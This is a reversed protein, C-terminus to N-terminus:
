KAKKEDEREELRDKMCLNRCNLESQMVWRSVNEYTDKIKLFIWPM